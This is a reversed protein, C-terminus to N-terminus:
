LRGLDVLTLRIERELLAGGVQEFQTDEGTECVLATYDKLDSTVQNQFLNYYVVTILATTMCIALLAILIFSRNIRKKM